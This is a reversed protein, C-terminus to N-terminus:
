LVELRYLVGNGRIKISTPKLHEPKTPITPKVLSQRWESLESSILFFSVLFIQPLQTKPEKGVSM